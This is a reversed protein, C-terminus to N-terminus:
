EILYKDLESYLKEKETPRPANNNVLNGKKDFILYHPISKINSLDYKKTKEMKFTMLNFKENDIGEKISAKKWKSFELDLSLYVFVVGKNKYDSRIQPLHKMEKRCPKCWSAWYDVYIVKGKNEEVIQELSKDLQNEQSFFSLILIILIKM